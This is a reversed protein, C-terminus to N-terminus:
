GYQRIGCGLCHRAGGQDYTTNWESWNEHLCPQRQGDEYFIDLECLAAVLHECRAGVSKEWDELMYIADCELMHIIDLKMFQGYTLDDKTLECPNVVEFGRDELSNQVRKFHAFYQPYDKIRGSVYIKM